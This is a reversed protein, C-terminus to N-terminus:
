LSFPTVRVRMLSFSPRAMLLVLVAPFKVSSLSTVKSEPLTAFRIKPASFLVVASSDKM